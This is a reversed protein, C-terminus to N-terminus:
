KTSAKAQEFCAKVEATSEADPCLANIFGDIRMNLLSVVMAPMGTTYDLIALQLINAVGMAVMQEDARKTLLPYFKKQAGLSDDVELLRRLMEEKPLLHFSRDPLASHPDGEGMVYLDDDEAIRRELLAIRADVLAKTRKSLWYDDIAIIVQLLSGVGLIILLNSQGQVAAFVALIGFIAAAVISAVMTKEKM